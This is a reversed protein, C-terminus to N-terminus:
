AVDASGPKAARRTKRDQRAISVVLAVALVATVYVSVSSIIYSGSQDSRNSDNDGTQLFRAFDGLGHLVIPVWLRGTARLAGYFLAGDVALYLTDFIISAVGVGDFLYGVTHAFGFAFSTILLATIERHHGLVSVRLIGRFYLEEGFGIFLSGVLYILVVSVTQESWPVEMLLGILQVVLVIPIALMWWRRRETFPSPATWAEATWGAQRTFLLGVVILVPVVIYHSLVFDLTDDGNAFVSLLNGGVAALLVYFAAAALGVWIARPITRTSRIDTM